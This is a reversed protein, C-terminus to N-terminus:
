SLDERRGKRPGRPGGRDRMDGGALGRSGRPVPPLKTWVTNGRHNTRSHNSYRRPRLREPDRTEARRKCKPDCRPDPNM